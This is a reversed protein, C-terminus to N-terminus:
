NLDRCKWYKSGHMNIQMALGTKTLKYLKVGKQVTYTDNVSEGDQDSQASADAQFNAEWGDEVFDDYVKKNDFIFVAMFEKAGFGIGIGSSGMNMYTVKGTQSNHALGTGGEISMMMSMSYNKFTAYGYANKIQEITQPEEKYLLELAEKSEALREARREDDSDGFSFGSFMLISLSLALLLKFSKM